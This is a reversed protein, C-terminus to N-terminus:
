GASGLKLGIVGALILGISAIRTWDASEGFYLMGVTAAGAAGIGVWVTYGVGLPIHRFALTMCGVSALMAVVVLVSPWLRSFGESMKMSVAWVIELCGATALLLWALGVQSM